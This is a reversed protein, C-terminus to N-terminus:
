GFYKSKECLYLRIRDYKMRPDLFEKYGKLSFKTKKDPLGTVESGDPYVLVFKHPNDGYKDDFNKNVQSFKRVADRKIQQVTDGEKPISGVMVKGGIGSNNNEAM